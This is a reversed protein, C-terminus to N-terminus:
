KDVKKQNRVKKANNKKANHRDVAREAALENLFYGPMFGQKSIWIRIGSKTKEFMPYTVDLM